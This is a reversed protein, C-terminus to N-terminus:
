ELKKWGPETYVRQVPRPDVREVERRQTEDRSHGPERKPSLEPLDDGLLHTYWLSVPVVFITGDDSVEKGEACLPQRDGVVIGQLM